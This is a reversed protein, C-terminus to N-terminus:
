TNVTIDVPAVGYKRTILSNLIVAEFGKLAAISESFRWNIPISPTAHGEFKVHSYLEEANEPLDRVLPNQIIGRLLLDSAEDPVSYNKGPPMQSQSSTITTPNNIPTKATVIYTTTSHHPLLTNEATGDSQWVV